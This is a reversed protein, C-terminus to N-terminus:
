NLVVGYRLKVREAFQPFIDENTDYGINELIKIGTDTEWDQLMPEYSENKKRCEKCTYAIEFIKSKDSHFDTKILWLHCRNCRYLWEGGESMIRRNNKRKSM